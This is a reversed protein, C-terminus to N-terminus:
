KSYLPSVQTPYSLLNRKVAAALEVLTQVQISGVCHFRAKVPMVLVELHVWQKLKFWTELPQSHAGSGEIAAVYGITFDALLCCWCRMQKLHILVGPGNCTWYRAAGKIIHTNVTNIVRRHTVFNVLAYM